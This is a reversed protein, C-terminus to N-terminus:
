SFIVKDYSLVSFTAQCFPCKYVGIKKVKSKRGCTKCEVILPIDFFEETKLKDQVNVYNKSEEENKNQKVKEELLNVEDSRGRVKSESDYHLDDKQSHDKSSSINKVLEEYKREEEFAREGVQRLIYLLADENNIAEYFLEKVRLFDFVMKIEQNINYIAIVKKHKKASFLVSLLAGVGTSSIYELELFDFIINRGKEIAYVMADEFDIASESDLAGRLHILLVHPYGEVVREKLELM